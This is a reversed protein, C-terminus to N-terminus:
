SDAVAKGMLLLSLQGKGIQQLPNSAPLAFGGVRHMKLNALKSRLFLGRPFSLNAGQGKGVAPFRM